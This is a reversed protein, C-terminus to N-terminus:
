AAMWSNQSTTEPFLACLDESNIFFGRYEKGGMVSALVTVHSPEYYIKRTQSSFSVKLTADKSAKVESIETGSVIGVPLKENRINAEFIKMAQALKQNDSYIQLAIANKYIHSLADKGQMDWRSMRKAAREASEKRWKIFLAWNLSILYSLGFSFIVISVLTLLFYVDGAPLGFLTKAIDQADRMEGWKGLVFGIIGTFTIGGAKSKKDM